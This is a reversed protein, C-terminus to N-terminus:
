HFLSVWNCKWWDMANKGTETMVLGEDMSDQDEEETQADSKSLCHGLVVYTTVIIVGLPIEMQLVNDPADDTSVPKKYELLTQIYPEM